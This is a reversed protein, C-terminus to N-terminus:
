MRNEHHFSGGGCKSWMPLSLPFFFVSYMCSEYAAFNWYINVQIKKASKEYINKKREGGVM